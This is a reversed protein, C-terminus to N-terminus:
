FAVKAQPTKRLGNRVPIGCEQSVQEALSEAEKAARTTPFLGLTISNDGTYFHQSDEKHRVRVLVGASSVKTESKNVRSNAMVQVDAFDRIPMTKSPKFRKGPWRTESVFMQSDKDWRTRREKFALHIGFLFPILWFPGIVLRIPWPAVLLL